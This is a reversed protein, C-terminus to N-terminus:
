GGGGKIRAHAALADGLRVFGLAAVGGAELVGRALSEGRRDPWTLGPDHTVVATLSGPRALAEPTADAEDAAVVVVYPHADGPIVHLRAAAGAHWPLTRSHQM